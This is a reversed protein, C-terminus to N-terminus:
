TLSQSRVVKLHHQGSMREILKDKTIFANNVLIDITGRDKQVKEVCENVSTADAVNMHYFYGLGAGIKSIEDLTTSASSENIDTIIVNVGESALAKAIAAGIGRGGGTILANKGKLGLDM